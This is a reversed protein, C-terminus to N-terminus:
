NRKLFRWDRAVCPEFRWVLGLYVLPWVISPLVFGGPGWDRWAWGAGSVALLLAVPRGLVPLYRAGVLGRAVIVSAPISSVITLAVAAATGPIDYHLTLFFAGIVLAVANSFTIWLLVRTKGAAQLLDASYGITMRLCATAMLIRFPVASNAFEPGFLLVIWEGGYLTSVLVLPATAVFTYRTLAEFAARRRERDGLRSLAAYAVPSVAIKLNFVFEPIRFALWYWGLDEQGLLHFVYFDDIRWYVFTLCQAAVLPWAFSALRRVVRRDFGFRPRVRAVVWLIALEVAFGIADGWVLAGIKWGLLAAFAIKLGPRLLCGVVQPLQLRWFDLRRQVLAGPMGIGNLLYQIALM